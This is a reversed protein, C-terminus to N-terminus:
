RDLFGQEPIGTCNIGHEKAHDKYLTNLVELSQDELDARDFNWLGQLKAEKEPEEQPEVEETTVVVEEESEGGKPEEQPQNVPEFEAEVTDPVEVIYGKELHVKLNDPTGGYEVM